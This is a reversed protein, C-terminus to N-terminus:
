PTLGPNAPGWTIIAASAAATVAKPGPPDRCPPTGPGVIAPQSSQRYRSGTGIDDACICIDLRFALIHVASSLCCVQDTFEQFIIPHMSM